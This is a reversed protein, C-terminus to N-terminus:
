LFYQGSFKMLSRLANIFNISESYLECNVPEINVFTCFDNKAILVAIQVFILSM